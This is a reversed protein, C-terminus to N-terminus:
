DRGRRKRGSRVAPTDTSAVENYMKSPPVYPDGEPITSQALRGALDRAFGGAIILAVLIMLALVGATFEHDSLSMAAPLLPYILRYVARLIWCGGAILAAIAVAGIGTLVPFLFLFLLGRLFTRM